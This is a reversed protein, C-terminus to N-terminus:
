NNGKRTARSDGLMSRIAGTFYKSIEQITSPVPAGKRPLVLITVTAVTIVSAMAAKIDDSM